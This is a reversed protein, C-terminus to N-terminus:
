RRKRSRESNEKLCSTICGTIPYIIKWGLLVTYAKQINHTPESGPRLGETGVVLGVVVDEKAIEQQSKPSRIGLLM